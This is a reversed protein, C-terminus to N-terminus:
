LPQELELLSIQTKGEVIPTLGRKATVSYGQDQLFIKLTQSFSEAKASSTSPELIVVEEIHHGSTLKEPAEEKHYGNTREHSFFILRSM